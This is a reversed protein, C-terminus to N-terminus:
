SVRIKRARGRVVLSALGLILGVVGAALAVAGVVSPIEDAPAARGLQWVVSGYTLGVLLPVLTCVAVALIMSWGRDAVFYCLAAVAVFIASAVWGVTVFDATGFRYYMDGVSARDANFWILFSAPLRPAIVTAFVIQAVVAFAAWM